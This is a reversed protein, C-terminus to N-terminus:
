VWWSLFYPLFKPQLTLSQGRWSGRCKPHHRDHLPCRGFQHRAVVLLIGCGRNLFVIFNFTFRYFIPALLNWTMPRIRFKQQHLGLRQTQALVGLDFLHYLGWSHDYFFRLYFVFSCEECEHGFLRGPPHVRCLWVKWFFSAMNEGSEHCLNLVLFRVFLVGLFVAPM